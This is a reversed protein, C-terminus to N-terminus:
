HEKSHAWPSAPRRSTVGQMHARESAQQIRACMAGSKNSHKETRRSCKVSRLEAFWVPSAVPQSILPLIALRLDYRAVGGRFKEGRAALYRAGM